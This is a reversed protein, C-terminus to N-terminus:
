SLWKRKIKVLIEEQIMRIRNFMDAMFALIILLFGLTLMASSFTILSTFPKTARHTIYWFVMFLGSAFGISFIFIGPIGFFKLPNHDRVTRTIIALANFGYSALSKVLRSKRKKSYVVKVPIEKIRFGKNLLDLFVEQTYTYNGFLNLNLAAERSYARFGCQTDTFNSKTLLNILKTFFKNGMKKILPINCESDKLFRSATVMDAENRLIPEILKPIDKANFQGDADITVIIDAKRKLAENIGKRFTKGLGLNKGNSIVIAKFKKAIEKTKDTSGDDIVITEVKEIKRLKKPINKLVKGITKEENYAPIVVVLKM